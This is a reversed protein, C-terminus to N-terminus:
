EYKKTKTIPGEELISESVLISATTAGNVLNELATGCGNNQTEGGGGGSGDSNDLENETTNTGDDYCNLYETYFFHCNSYVGNNENCIYWDITECRLKAADNSPAPTNSVKNKKKIVMQPMIRKKSLSNGSWDETLIYGEFEKTNGDQFSKSPLTIIIESKYNGNADKYVYLKSQEDLLLLNSNGFSTRFHIPKIYKLPVMVVEGKDITTEVKAKEWIPMKGVQREKTKSANNKENNAAVIINRDFFTKALLVLDMKQEGTAIRPGKVLENKKCAIFICFTLLLYVIGKLMHKM